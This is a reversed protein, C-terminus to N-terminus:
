VKLTETDIPIFRGEILSISFASDDMDDSGPSKININVLDADRLSYTRVFVPDDLMDQVEDLSDKAFMNLTDWDKIILIYM